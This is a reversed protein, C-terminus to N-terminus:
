ADNVKRKFEKIYFKELNKLSNNVFIIYEKEQLICSIIKKNKSFKEILNFNGVEYLQNIKEKLEKSCKATLTKNFLEEEKLISIESGNNLLFEYKKNDHFGIYKNDNLLIKNNRLSENIPNFFGSKEDNIIIKNKQYTCFYVSGDLSVKKIDKLVDVIEFKGDQILTKIKLELTINKDKNLCHIEEQQPIKKRKEKVKYKKTKTLHGGNLHYCTVVKFVKENRKKSLIFLINEAEYEIFQYELDYGYKEYLHIMYITNNLYSKNVNLNKLLNSFYKNLCNTGLEKKWNCLIENNNYFTSFREKLRDMVHNTVFVNEM